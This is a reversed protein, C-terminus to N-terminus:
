NSELTKKGNGFVDKVIRESQEDFMAGLLTEATMAKGYQGFLNQIRGFKETLTHGEYVKGTRVDVLFVSTEVKIHKPREEINRTRANFISNALEVDVELLNCFLLYDAGYKMGIERAADTMEQGIRYPKGVAAKRAAKNKENWFYEEGFIKEAYHIMRANASDKQFQPGHAIVDMHIHSLIEREKADGNGTMWDTNDVFHVKGQQEMLQLNEGLKDHFVKLFEPQIEHEGYCAIEAVFVGAGDKRAEFPKASVCSCILLLFMCVLFCLKRCLRM